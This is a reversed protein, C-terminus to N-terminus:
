FSQVQCVFFRELQLAAETKYAHRSGIQQNRMFTEAHKMPTVLSTAIGMIHANGGKDIALAKITIGM